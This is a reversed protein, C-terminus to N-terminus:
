HPPLVGTTSSDASRLHQSDGNQATDYASATQPKWVDCILQRHMCSRAEDIPAGRRCCRDIKSSGYLLDRLLQSALLSNAVLLIRSEFILALIGDRLM